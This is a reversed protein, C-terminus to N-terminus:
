GPLSHSAKRIPPLPCIWASPTMAPVTERARNDVTLSTSVTLTWHAPSHTVPEGWVHPTNAEHTDAPWTLSSLSQDWEGHPPLGQAPTAPIRSFPNNQQSVPDGCFVDCGGIPGMPVFGLVWSSPTYAIAEEEQVRVRGMPQRQIVVRLTCKVDQNIRSSIILVGTPRNAPLKLENQFLM